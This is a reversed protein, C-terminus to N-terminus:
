ERDPKEPPSERPMDESGYRGITAELGRVAERARPLRERRKRREILPPCKYQNYYVVQCDLCYHCENANIEGTARIAHVPCEVACTQCPKGCEKRRRLWWDFLRFRGPIALAAGLPCLYKCFFKRNVVTIAILALAYLVFPWERQFRFGFATKFPEVEAYVAAEGMSQLSVGFLLILIIYKLAALREHVVDPFDLQPVNFRRGIKNVLEQLAGFPCLWGCYVGRGWLLLTVAVFSWLMFLMPDILFHEWRFERMVAHVFTLVNIVTLQALAYWGIFFLTFVLFGNRVWAVLKPRRALWDQFILILTLVSLGAVLLGIEVERHRWADVWIPEEPQPAPRAAPPPTMAQPAPAPPEAKEARKPPAPKPARAAPGPREPAESIRPPAAPAPVPMAPPVAAPAAATEAPPAWPAPRVAAPADPLLVGRSEAVLRAARMVTANEVMVTITAGTIGDLRVYGQRPAGITIRDFVSKGRYQDIFQNLRAQTIGVALIPEEHHVISVGTIRGALDFGVLTNIPQGSYAPIRVADQTFFVYGLLEDGRYVPASPPRGDFGGFRNAEPFFERIQPYVSALDESASRAQGTLLLLPLLLLPLARAIAARFGIGTM